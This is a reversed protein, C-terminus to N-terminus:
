KATTGATPIVTLMFNGVQKLTSATEGPSLSAEKTLQGNNMIEVVFDGGPKAYVLEAPPPSGQAPAAYGLGALEKDFHAKVTDWGAADNFGVTLAKAGSTSQESRTVVTSGSPLTLGKLWLEPPAAPKCGFALLLVAATTLLTPVLSTRM